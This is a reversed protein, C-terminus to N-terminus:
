KMKKIHEPFYSLEVKAKKGMSTFFGTIMIKVSSMLHGGIQELLNIGDV